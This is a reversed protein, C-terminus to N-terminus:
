AATAEFVFVHMDDPLHSVARAHPSNRAAPVSGSWVLEQDTPTFGHNQCIRSLTEAAQDRVQAAHNKMLAYDARVPIVVQCKEGVTTTYSM